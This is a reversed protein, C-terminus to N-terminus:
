QKTNILVCRCVESNSIFCSTGLLCLVWLNATSSNGHIAWSDAAALWRASDYNSSCLLAVLSSIVKIISTAPLRNAPPGCVLIPTLELCGPPRACWIVFNNSSKLLNKQNTQGMALMHCVMFAGKWEMPHGTRRTSLVTQTQNPTSGQIRPGRKVGFLDTPHVIVFSKLALWHRRVQTELFPLWKKSM